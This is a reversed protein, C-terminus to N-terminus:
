HLVRKRSGFGFVALAVDRQHVQAEVLSQAITWASEHRDAQLKDRLSKLTKALQRKSLLGAFIKKVLGLTSIQSWCVVVLVAVM